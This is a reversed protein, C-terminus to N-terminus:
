PLHFVEELSAWWEGSARTALPAQMPGCLEWWKKMAPSGAMRAADAAFDNGHYEWYAFLLNEPERLFISYNRINAKGLLDLIEPWVAAHVRKYEAIAEPKVGICHAMRQM